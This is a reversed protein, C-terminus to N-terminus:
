KQTASIIDTQLFAAFRPDQDARHQIRSAARRVAAPNSYGFYEAIFEAPVRHIRHAIYCVLSHVTLHGLLAEKGALREICREELFRVWEVSFEALPDSKKAKRPRELGEKLYRRYNEVDGLDENRLAMTVPGLDLWPPSERLGVYDACSSWRYPIPAEGLDVPNLHIYRSVYAVGVADEILVSKFPGQFLCGSTDHRENFSRAYNGDLDRM